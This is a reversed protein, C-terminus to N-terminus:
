VYKPLLHMVIFECVIERSIKGRGIKEMNVAGSM